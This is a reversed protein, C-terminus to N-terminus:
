LKNVFCLVIYCQILILTFMVMFLDVAKYVERPWILTGLSDLMATALLTSVLGTQIKEDYNSPTPCILINNTKFSHHEIIESILDNM